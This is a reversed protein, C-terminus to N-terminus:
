FRSPSESFTRKLLSSSCTVVMQATARKWDMHGEPAPGCYRVESEGAKSNGAGEFVAQGRRRTRRTGNVELLFRVQQKNFTTLKSHVQTLQDIEM